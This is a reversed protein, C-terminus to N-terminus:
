TFPINDTYPTTKALTHAPLSFRRLESSAFRNEFTSFLSLFLGALSVSSNSRVVEPLAFCLVHRNIERRSRLQDHRWLRALNKPPCRLQVRSLTQGVQSVPSDFQPNM